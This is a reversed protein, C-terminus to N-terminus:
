FTYRWQTTLETQDPAGKRRGLAGRLEATLRRSVRYRLNVYSRTGQGYYAPIRFRYLLDNEYAYIRSDYDDTNIVAVRGTISLPLQEPKWLIDQYIVTGDSIRGSEQTYAYEVRSRLSLQKSLQVEAQIRASTRNYPLLTRLTESDASPEDRDAQRRRVQLYASYKRRKEYTLRALADTNTGPRTQRFRAFPQRYLDVFGQLTFESNLQIRSGIYLGEETNALRSSGFANAYLSRYQSDYRRLVISVDTRRDLTTQLGTIVATHKTGDIAAEGFWSVKGLFTQWAVSANRIRDGALNFRQYLADGPAFPTEFRHEIGHISVRGWRQEIGVAGGLSVATNIGRGAIESPTRHLGSLRNTVFAFDEALVDLTDVTGDARTRSTLAMARVPGFQVATAAGRYFGVETVSAHPILWRPTRQVNMVFAGKGTGFGSYNILGQGWNLGFDGLAVTKIRGPLEDAFAHVSVYDFGLPNNKGGYPEGADNELVLGLSLQRGATQRIRIYLPLPPGQWLDRNATTSQYGTRLAAFGVADRLRDRIAKIPATANESVKVYPLLQRVEEVSLAEVAQLELISVYNGTEERHRLIAEVQAPALLGLDSLLEATASNLDIPQRQYYARSEAIRELDGSEVNDDELSGDDLQEIQNQTDTDLGGVIPLGAREPPPITDALLTDVPLDIIARTGETQASLTLLSGGCCCLWILLLTHCLWRRM